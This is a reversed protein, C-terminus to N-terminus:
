LLAAMEDLVVTVDVRNKKAHTVIKTRTKEKVNKVHWDKIIKEM